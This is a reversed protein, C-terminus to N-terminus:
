CTSEKLNGSRRPLAKSTNSWRLARRKVGAAGRLCVTLDSMIAPHSVPVLCECPHAEADLHDRGRSYHGCKYAAWIDPWLLKFSESFVICERGPILESSMLRPWTVDYIHCSTDEWSITQKTVSYVSLTFLLSKKEQMDSLSASLSCM